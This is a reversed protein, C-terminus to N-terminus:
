ALSVVEGPLAQEVGGGPHLVREAVDMRAAHVARMRAREDIFLATCGAASLVVFQGALVLLWRVAQGGDGPPIARDIGLGITVPVLIEALQHVSVLFGALVVDRRQRRLALGLVSPPEAPVPGPNVETTVVM